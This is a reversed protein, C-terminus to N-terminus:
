RNGLSFESESRKHLGRLYEGHERAVSDLIDQPLLGPKRRAMKREYASLDPQKGGAQIDTTM